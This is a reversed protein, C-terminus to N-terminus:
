IWDAISRNRKQFLEQLRRLLVGVLMAQPHTATRIRVKPHRAVVVLGQAPIGARGERRHCLVVLLEARTREVHEQVPDRVGRALGDLDSQLCPENQSLRRSRLEAGM